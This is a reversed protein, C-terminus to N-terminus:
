LNPKAFARRDGRPGGDIRNIQRCAFRGFRLFGSAAVAGQAIKGRQRHATAPRDFIGVACTVRTKKQCLCPSKRALLALAHGQRVAGGSAFVRGDTQWGERLGWRLLAVLPSTAHFADDSPKHANRQHDDDQKVGEPIELAERFVCGAWDPLTRAQVCRAPLHTCARVRRIDSRARPRPCPTALAPILSM